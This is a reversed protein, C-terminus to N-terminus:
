VFQDPYKVGQNLVLYNLCCVDGPALIFVNEDPVYLFSMKEEDVSGGASSQKCTDSFGLPQLSIRAGLLTWKPVGTSMYDNTWAM